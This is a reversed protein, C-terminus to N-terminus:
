SLRDILPLSPTYVYMFVYWFMNLSIVGLRPAGRRNIESLWERFAIATPQM